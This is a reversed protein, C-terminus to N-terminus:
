RGSNALDRSYGRDQNPNRQKNRRNQRKADERHKETKLRGRLEAILKAYEEIRKKTEQQQEYKEPNTEAKMNQYSKKHDRMLEKSKQLQNYLEEPKTNDNPKDDNSGFLDSNLALEEKSFPRGKDNPGERKREGIAM